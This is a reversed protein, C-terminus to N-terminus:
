KATEARREARRGAPVRDRRAVALCDEWRVPSDDLFAFELTQRRDTVVLHGPLNLYAFTMEDLPVTVWADRGAFTLITGDLSLEGRGLPILRPYEIRFAKVRAWIVQAAPLSGAALRDKILRHYDRELLIEGTRDDILELRRTVRWAAGCQRCVIGEATERMARVAGCRLCAWAVTTLGRHSAWCTREVPPESLGSFIREEIRERLQQPGACDGPLIPPYFRITIRAFSPWGAWRPMAEHGGRVAAAIVPVRCHHLFRYVEDGVIVPGGDWTRSGEPFIGVVEGQALWREAQRLAGVDRGWRRKKVAGFFSGFLVRLVPRRFLEDSAIFHIPRILFLGLLFPDALNTHNAALLHPGEEPLHEQGEVKVRWLLRFLFRFVVMATLLVLNLRLAGRWLREWHPRFFRVRTRYVRYREGFRRRLDPEEVLGAHAYLIAGALGALLLGATSGRRLALGLLAATYGLYLPHRTFSYIHQTVLLVPRRRPWEKGICGLVLGARLTLYGGAALLLLGGLRGAAGPAFRPLFPLVTEGWSALAWPLLFLFFSGKAALVSLALIEQIIRGAAEPPGHGASRM